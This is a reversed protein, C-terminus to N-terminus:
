SSFPMLTSQVELDKHYPGLEKWTNEKYMGGALTM